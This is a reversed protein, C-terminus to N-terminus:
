AVIEQPTTIIRRSVEKLDFTPLTNKEQRPIKAVPSFKCVINQRDPSTISELKFAQKRRGGLKGGVLNYLKGITLERAEFEYTIEEKGVPKNKLMKVESYVVLYRM